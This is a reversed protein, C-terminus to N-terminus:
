SLPKKIFSIAKVYRLMEQRNSEQYDPKSVHVNISFGNRYFVATMNNQNIEQGEFYRTFYEVCAAEGIGFKNLKTALNLYPSGSPNKIFADLCSNPDHCETTKDVEIVVIFEEDADSFIYSSSQSDGYQAGLSLMAAPFTLLWDASETTIYCRGKDTYISKFTSCSGLFLLTIIGLIFQRKM